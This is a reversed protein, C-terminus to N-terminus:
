QTVKRRVYRELLMGLFLAVATVLVVYGLDAYLSKYGRAMSERTLEILQMIPNLMLFDGIRHSFVSVSFFIGSVFFLIRMIIPVIQQIVPVYVALSGFIAGAGLGFLAGLVVCFILLAINSITLAYGFVAGLGLLVAMSVVQTATVVLCRALMVDLPTVQPFTLLARNGDVAAMCKSLCQAVIYWIGFGAVLYSLMTMGHPAAAHAFHRIAWFVAVSFAAQVIAWLYGLSKGGYLTHVERLALAIIVRGQTDLASSTAM